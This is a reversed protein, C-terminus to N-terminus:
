PMWRGFAITTMWVANTSGGATVSRLRLANAGKLLYRPLPYTYVTPITPDASTAAADVGASNTYVVSFSPVVPYSLDWPEYKQLAFSNQAPVTPDIYVPCFIATVINSGAASSGKVQFFNAVSRFILTGAINTSGAAGPLSQDDVPGGPWSAEVPVDQLFNVTSNTVVVWGNTVQGNANTGPNVPTANTIIMLSGPLLVGNVTVPPQSTAWMWGMSPLNTVNGASNTQPSGGGGNQAAISDLNTVGVNNSIVFSIIPPKIFSSVTYNAALCQSVIGLVGIISLLKKM